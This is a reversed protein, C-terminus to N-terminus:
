SPMAPRDMEMPVEAEATAIATLRDGNLVRKFTVHYGRLTEPWHTGEEGTQWVWVAEMHAIEWGDAGWANLGATVDMPITDPQEQGAINQIYVHEYEYKPM